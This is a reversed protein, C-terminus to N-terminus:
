WTTSARMTQSERRERGCDRATADPKAEPTTMDPRANTGRFAPPAPFVEFRPVEGHFEKVAHAPAPEPLAALAVALALLTAILCM